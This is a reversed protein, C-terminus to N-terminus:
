GEDTEELSHRLLDKARKLHTRVTNLPLSLVRAIEEYSMGAEYRLAIVQRYAFPLTQVSEALRRRMQGDDAMQEPDLDPAAQGELVDEVPVDEVRRDRRYRDRALNSAITALYPLLPRDVEFRPLAQWFRWFTEQVIAEAEMTDPVMRRVIRFVPPTYRDVLAGFAAENHQQARELLEQEDSSPRNMSARRLAPFTETRLFDIITTM